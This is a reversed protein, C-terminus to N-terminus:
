DDLDVGIIEAINDIVNQLISSDWYSEIEKLDFLINKITELKHKLQENEESLTNTRFKEVKIQRDKENLERVIKQADVINCLAFYCGNKEIQNKNVNFEYQKTRETM